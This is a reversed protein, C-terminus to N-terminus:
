ANIVGAGYEHKLRDILRAEDDTLKAQDVFRWNREYLQFAERAAIFEDTRNWVLDALQPYDRVCVVARTVAEELVRDLDGSRRAVALKEALQSPTTLQINVLGAGRQRARQRRKALRLQEARPLKSTPPRGPKRM